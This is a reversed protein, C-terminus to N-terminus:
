RKVTKRLEKTANLNVKMTSKDIVVGYDKRARQISVKENLVDKEVLDVDRELPDGWGGAGAAIWRLVEGLKMQYNIKNIHRNETAPNLTAELPAGPQGGCLGWPGMRQRDVRLQLTAKECLLRYERIVGLSGRYKGAGGTDPAFSYEDYM